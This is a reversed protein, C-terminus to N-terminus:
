APGRCPSHPVGASRQCPSPRVPWPERLAMARGELEDAAQGAYKHHRRQHIEEERRSRKLAHVRGVIFAELPDFISQHEFRHKAVRALIRHSVQAIDIVLQVVNPTPQLMDLPLVLKRGLSLRGRFGPYPCGAM